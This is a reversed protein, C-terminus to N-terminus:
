FKKLAVDGSQILTKRTNLSKKSNVNQKETLVKM